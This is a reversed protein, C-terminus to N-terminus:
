AGRLATLPACLLPVFLENWTLSGHQSVLRSDYPNGPTAPDRRQWNCGDDLLVLLDGLSRRVWAEHEATAPPGSGNADLPPGALAKVEDFTFVQGEDGVFERLWAAVRAEQGEDLYLHLVRGSQGIARTHETLWQLHAGYLPLHRDINSQGHDAVVMLATEEAVGPPLSAALWALGAEIQALALRMQPGDGTVVHSLSDVDEMYMGVWGREMDTLMRAAKSFGELPSVFGVLPTNGYILTSLGSGVIHKNMLHYAPM